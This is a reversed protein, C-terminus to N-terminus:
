ILNGILLFSGTNNYDKTIDIFITDGGSVVFPTTVTVGNVKIIIESIDIISTVSTFKIDYEANITVQTESRPKFIFSYNVLSENTDTTIRVRPKIVNDSVEEVIMARNITPVVEFTDEDLLYGLLKMEFLQVYFRRNEFDDIPSEDGITELHIPMPHGNPKIYHQRSQFTQQITLNIKNLDRMKNCFMRVEYSVDVSTPQPIKYLDVGKRGNDFTPVKVYTYTRRGQPINWNGAQNTGVQVDPKRVITIFPLKIDKYKDSHQWTKSFEAWRQITLFIVPIKEGDVVIELDKDVFEVFAKDMDEYLVGRPLFTGQNAIENLMEQRREPGVTPSTLKLNKIFGKPLPM